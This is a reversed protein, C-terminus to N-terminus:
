HEVVYAKRKMERMKEGDEALKIRAKLYDITDLLDGFSGFALDLRLDLDGSAFDTCLSALQDDKLVAM